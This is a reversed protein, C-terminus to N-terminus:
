YLFYLVVFALIVRYIIFVSLSKAKLFNILFKIALLGSVFSALIGAFYPAYGISAIFSSTTFLKFFAAALVAPTSLFFSFKAADERKLGGLLGGSITVGSRSIGPLLALPQVFGMILATKLNLKTGKELKGAAYEALVMILSGILLFVVVWFAERFFNEVPGDLFFGVIMVPLSGATLYLAMKRDMKLFDRAFYVFVAAATGLHLSTDFVM